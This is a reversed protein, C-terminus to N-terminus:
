QLMDRINYQKNKTLIPQNIALFLMVESSDTNQEPWNGKYKVTM